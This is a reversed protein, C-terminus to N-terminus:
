GFDYGVTFTIEYHDGDAIMTDDAGTMLMEGGKTICWWEEKTSDATEGEVTTIYLGYPGDEGEIIKYQELAGRLNESKTRLAIESQAGDSHTVTVYLSIGRSNNGAKPSFCFYALLIAAILVVFAVGILIKTKKSM